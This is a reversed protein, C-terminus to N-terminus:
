TDLKARSSTLVLIANALKSVANSLALKEAPNTTVNM